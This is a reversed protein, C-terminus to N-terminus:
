EFKSQAIISHSSALAEFSGLVVWNSENTLLNLQRLDESLARDYLEAMEKMANGMRFQSGLILETRDNRTLKSMYIVNLFPEGQKTVNPVVFKADTARPDDLYERMRKRVPGAGGEPQLFRCNKGIVEAEDYGCLDFFKQNAAVLPCDPRTYDAITLSVESRGILGVLGEPLNATEDFAAKGM